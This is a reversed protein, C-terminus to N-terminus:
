TYWLYFGGGRLFERRRMRAAEVNSRSLSAELLLYPYSPFMRSNGGSVLPVISFPRTRRSLSRTGLQGVSKMLVPTPLCNISHVTIRNMQNPAASGGRGLRAAGEPPKVGGVLPDVGQDGVPM